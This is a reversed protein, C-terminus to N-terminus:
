QFNAYFADGSTGTISAQDKLVTNAASTCSVYQGAALQVSAGETANAIPGFYVYETHTGNNQIACGQRNNTQRQISQFTDTVAITGSLNTSVVPLTQALTLSPMLAFFLVFIFKM